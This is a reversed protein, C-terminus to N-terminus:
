VTPRPAEIEFSGHVTQFSEAEELDAFVTVDGPQCSHQGFMVVFANGDNDTEIESQLIGENRGKQHPITRAESNVWEVWGDCRDALQAANIDVPTEVAPFEVQVITVVSSHDDSEVEKAPMTRVGEATPEPPLVTFSASYTEFPYEAEDVVVTTEGPRCDTAVLAVTANGDDDLAVDEHIAPGTGDGHGDSEFWRINGGNIHCRNYLEQDSIRVAGDYQYKGSDECEVEIVDAVSSPIGANNLGEEGQDMFSPLSVVMCGVPAGAWGPTLKTKQAAATGALTFVGLVVVAVGAILNRREMVDELSSSIRGAAGSRGFTM